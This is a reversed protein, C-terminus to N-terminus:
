NQNDVTKFIEELMEDLKKGSDIHNLLSGVNYELGITFSVAEQIKEISEYTNISLLKGTRWDYIRLGNEDVQVRPHARDNRWKSFITLQDCIHRLYQVDVETTSQNDFQDLEELLTQRLKSFEQKFVKEFKLDPEKIRRIYFVATALQQTLNAFALHFLGFAAATEDLKM